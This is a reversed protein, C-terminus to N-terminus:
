TSLQGSCQTQLMGNIILKLSVLKQVMFIIIDKFIFVNKITSRQKSYESDMDFWRIDLEASAPYQM